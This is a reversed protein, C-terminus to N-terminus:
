QKNVLKKFNEVCHKFAKPGLCRKIVYHIKDDIYVYVCILNYGYQQEFDKSVDTPAMAPSVSQVIDYEAKMIEMKGDVLQQDIKHIVERYEDTKPNLSALIAYSSELIGIFEDISRVVASHDVNAAM